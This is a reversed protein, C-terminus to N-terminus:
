SAEIRSRPSRKCGYVASLCLFHCRFQSRLSFPQTQSITSRAAPRLLPIWSLRDSRSSVPNSQPGPGYPDSDPTRSKFTCSFLFLFLFFPTTSRMICLAYHTDCIAYRMDNSSYKPKPKPKPKLGSPPSPALLPSTDLDDLGLGLGLWARV